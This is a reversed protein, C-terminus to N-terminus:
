AVALGPQLWGPLREWPLLAAAGLGAVSGVVFALMAGDPRQLDLALLALLGVM